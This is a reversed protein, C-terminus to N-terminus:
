NVVKRVRKVNTGAPPTVCNPPLYADHESASSGFANSVPGAPRAHERLYFGWVPAFRSDYVSEVQVILLMLM